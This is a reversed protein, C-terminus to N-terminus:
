SDCVEIRGATPRHGSGASRVIRAAPRDQQRHTVLLRRAAPWYPTPWRPALWHWTLWRWALWPWALWRRTLGDLLPTTPRTVRPFWVICDERLACARERSIRAHRVPGGERVDVVPIPVLGLPPSM